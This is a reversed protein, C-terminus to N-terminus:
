QKSVPETGGGRGPFLSVNRGVKWAFNVLDLTRAGNIIREAGRVVYSSLNRGEDLTSVNKLVPSVDRARANIM